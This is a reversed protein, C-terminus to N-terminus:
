LPQEPDDHHEGPYPPMANADNRSPATRGLLRIGFYILLGAVIITPLQGIFNYYLYGLGMSDLLDYLMPAIWNDFLVWVGCAVLM